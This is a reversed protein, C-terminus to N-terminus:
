NLIKKGYRGESATSQQRRLKKPKKKKSQM